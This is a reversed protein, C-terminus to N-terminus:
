GLSSRRFETPTSGTAAKFARNFPAVSGYGLDLAIQIIQDKAHAPDALKVKADEMRRANLFASFNRFGLERNILRRLQHEPVGVKEALTSVTLGEERYVGEDMLQNLKEFAGMDAAPVPTSLKASAPTETVKEQVDPAFLARNATMMWFAFFFSILALEVSHILTVISPLDRVAGISEGIAITIGAVGIVVSFAMRFARRPNVLDDSRHRLAVWLAHAGLGIMLINHTIQEFVQAGQSWEWLGFPPHLVFIIFLPSVKLWTLKFQDDFLSLAFWWFFVINASAFPKLFPYLPGIIDIESHGSILIYITTGFFFLAGLWRRTTPAASFLILGAGVLAVGAAAGRLAIEIMLLSSMCRRQAFVPGNDIM